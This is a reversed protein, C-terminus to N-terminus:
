RESFVIDAFEETRMLGLDQGSRPRVSVSQTKEEKDGIILMYPIKQLGAERIKAQMTEDR